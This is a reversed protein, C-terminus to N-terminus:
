REFKNLNRNQDSQGSLWRNPSLEFSIQASMYPNSQSGDSLTRRIDKTIVFSRRYINTRWSAGWKTMEFLFNDTKRNKKAFFLHITKMFPVAKNVIPSSIIQTAYSKNQGVERTIRSAGSSHVDGSVISLYKPKFHDGYKFITEIMKKEDVIHNGHAWHDVVDDHHWISLRRSRLLRTLFGFAREFASTYNMHAIPVPLIFCINYYENNNGNLHDSMLKYDEDSIIKRETRNERTEPFVLLHNNVTIFRTGTSNKRLQFLEYYIKAIKFLEEHKDTIFKAHSGYGDIIDHDDWTMLNPITALALSIDKNKWSDIYLKLYFKKVYLVEDNSLKSRDSLFFKRYLSDKESLLQDAYIQDGGFILYDPKQNMLEQYGLYDEPQVSDPGHHSGNCSVYAIAPTKNGNLINVKFSSRQHTDKIAVEEIIISYNFHNQNISSKEVLFKYYEYGFLIDPDDILKGDIVSSTDDYEIKLKAPENKSIPNRDLLFCISLKSKSEIGVLPGLIINSM